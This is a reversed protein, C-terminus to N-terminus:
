PNSMLSSFDAKIVRSEPSVLKLFQKMLNVAGNDNEMKYGIDDLHESDRYSELDMWIEESETALVLSDLSVFGESTDSRSLQFSQYNLIGNKQFKDKFQKQNDLMADHNEKPIRYIYLRIHNSTILDESNRYEEDM